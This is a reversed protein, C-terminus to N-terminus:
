ASKVAEMRREQISQTLRTAYIRASSAARSDNRREIARVMTTLDEVTARRCDPDELGAIILWGYRAHFEVEAASMMASQAAAALEMHLRGVAQATASASAAEEFRQVYSILRMINRASARGSALRAEETILMLRWDGIDRLEATSLERLRDALLHLAQDPASRVSSGGNRGRRTVILGESRLQALAERISFVAVGFQEAMEPESPLLEGDELIGVGIGARLRQVIKEVPNDAGIPGFVAVQNTPGDSGTGEPASM